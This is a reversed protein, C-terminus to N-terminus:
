NEKENQQMFEGDGASLTSFPNSSLVSLNCLSFSDWVCEGVCVCVNVNVFQSDREWVRERVSECEWEIESERVGVREKEIESEIESVSESGIESERAGERVRVKEKKRLWVCVGVWERDCLSFHTTVCVCVCVCVCLSYNKWMCEFVKNREQVQVCVCVCVYQWARM